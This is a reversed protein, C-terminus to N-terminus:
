NNPRDVKSTAVYMDNSLMWNDNKPGKSYLVKCAAWFTPYPFGWIWISSGLMENTYNSGRRQTISHVLAHFSMVNRLHLDFRALIHFQHARERPIESPTPQTNGLFSSNFFPNSSEKKIYFPPLLLLGGEDGSHGKEVMNFHCWLGVTVDCLM